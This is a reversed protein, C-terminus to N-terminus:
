ANIKVGNPFTVQSLNLEDTIDSSSCGAASWAVVTVISVASLARSIRM